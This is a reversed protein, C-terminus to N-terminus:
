VAITMGANRLTSSIFTDNGRGGIGFAEKIYNVAQTVHKCDSELLDGAVLETVIVLIHHLDKVGSGRM